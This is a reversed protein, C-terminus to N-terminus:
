TCQLHLKKKDIDNFAKFNKGTLDHTLHFEPVDHLLQFWGDLIAYEVPQLLGRGYFYESFVFRLSFKQVEIFIAQFYYPKNIEYRASHVSREQIKAVGVNRLHGELM